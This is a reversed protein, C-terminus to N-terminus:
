AIYATLLHTILLARIVLKKEIWPLPSLLVLYLCILTLTNKRIANSGKLIDPPPALAQVPGRIM